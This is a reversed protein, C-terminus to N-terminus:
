HDRKIQYNYPYLKRPYKEIADNKDDVNMNQKIFQGYDGIM